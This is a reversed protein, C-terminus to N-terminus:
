SRGRGVNTEARAAESTTDTHREKGQRTTGTDATRRRQVEFQNLADVFRDKVDNRRRLFDPDAFVGENEALQNRVADRQVYREVTDTWDLYDHRDHPKLAATYPNQESAKTRNEGHTLIPYVVLEERGDREIGVVWFPVNVQVNGDVGPLPTQLSDITEATERRDDLFDDIASTFAERSERLRQLRYEHISGAGHSGLEEAKERVSGRHDLVEEFEGTVQDFGESQGPISNIFRDKLRRISSKYDELVNRKKRQFKAKKEEYQEELTEKISTTAEKKARAKTREIETVQNELDEVAQQLDELERELDNVASATRSTNNKISRLRDDLERGVADGAAKGIRREDVSVTVKNNNNSM